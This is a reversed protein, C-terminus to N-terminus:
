CGQSDKSAAPEGRADKVVAKAGLVSSVNQHPTEASRSVLSAGTTDPRAHAPRDRITPSGGRNSPTLVTSSHLRSKGGLAAGSSAVAGPKRAVSCSGVAASLGGGGVRRADVESFAQGRRRCGKLFLTAKAAAKTRGRSFCPVKAAPPAGSGQSSAAPSPSPRAKKAAATAPAGSSAGPHAQLGHAPLGAGPPPVPSVSAVSAGPTSRSVYPMGAGAAPGPSARTVAARAGSVGGSGRRYSLGIADHGPISASARSAPQPVFPAICFRSLFSLSSSSTAQAFAQRFPNETGKHGSKLTSEDPEVEHLLDTSAHSAQIVSSPNALVEAAVEKGRSEKEGKAQGGANQRELTFRGTAGHSREDRRGGSGAGRIALSAVAKAAADIVAADCLCAHRDERREIEGDSRGCKCEHGDDAAIRPSAPRSLSRNEDAIGRLHARSQARLGGRCVLEQRRAGTGNTQEQAATDGQPATRYNSMDTSNLLMPSAVRKSRSRVPIARDCRCGAQIHWALRSLPFDCRSGRATAERVEKMIQLALSFRSDRSAAVFPDVPRGDERFLCADDDDDDDEDEEVDSKDAVGDSDAAGAAASAAVASRTRITRRPKRSASSSPQPQSNEREEPEEMDERSEASDGAARARKQAPREANEEGEDGPEEEPAARRARRGGKANEKVSGAEPEDEGLGAAPTSVQPSRQLKTRRKEEKRQEIWQRRQEKRQQAEERRQRQRVLSDFRRRVRRTTALFCKMVEVFLKKLSVRQLAVSSQTGFRHTSLFQVWQKQEQQSFASGPLAVGRQEILDEAALTQAVRPRAVPLSHGASSPPSHSAGGRAATQPRAASTSLRRRKARKFRCVPCRWVADPQLEEDTPPPFICALHFVRRCRRSSSPSRRRARSPAGRRRSPVPLGADKVPRSAKLTRENEKDRPNLSQEGAAQVNEQKEEADERHPRDRAEGDCLFLDGGVGCMWCLREHYTGREEDESADSFLREEDESADSFLREEDESADSFLREEDESADSFLREEDGEDSVRMQAEGAGGEVGYPFVEDAEMTGTPEKEAQAGAGELPSRVANMEPSQRMCTSSGLDGENGKRREDNSFSREGLEGCGLSLAEKSASQGDRAAKLLERLATAAIDSSPFASRRLQHLLRDGLERHFANAPVRQRRRASAGRRSAKKRGRAIAADSEDRAGENKAAHGATSGQPPPSRQELESASVEDNASAPSPRRAEACPAAELEGSGAKEVIEAEPSKSGAGSSLSTETSTGKVLQRPLRVARQLPRHPARPLSDVLFSALGIPTLSPLFAAARAHRLLVDAARLYRWRLCAREEEESDARGAAAESAADPTGCGDGTGLAAESSSEEEDGQVDTKEAARSASRCSSPESEEPAEEKVTGVPLGTGKMESAVPEAGTEQKAQKKAEDATAEGGHVRSAALWLPLLVRKRVFPDYQSLFSVFERLELELGKGAESHSNSLGPKGVQDRIGSRKLSDAEAKHANPLLRSPLGALRGAAESCSALVDDKEKESVEVARTLFTHLDEAEGVGDHPPLAALASLEASAPPCRSRNVGLPVHALFAKYFFRQSPFPLCHVFAEAAQNRNADGESNEEGAEEGGSRLFDLCLRLYTEECLELEARKVAPCRRGEPSAAFSSEPSSGEADTLGADSMDTLYYGRLETPVDPLPFGTFPCANLVTPGSACPRRSEPSEDGSSEGSQARKEALGGEREESEKGQAGAGSALWGTFVDLALPTKDERPPIPLRLGEHAVCEAARLGTDYAGDVCQFYAKSVYEGAFLVRPNEAPHPARLVETDDEFANVAPFSYSGRTFPDAQWRTVLYDVLRPLKQDPLGFMRQLVALVEAVVEEDSQLGGYGNSFPPFSHALLCGEKGYAHLNLFQFKQDLCNLQLQHPEWFVDDPHWRLIIKNHVGMKIRKLAQQKELSLAPSFQLLGASGPLPPQCDDPNASARRISPADLPDSRRSHATRGDAMGQGLRLFSESLQSVPLAVVAFKAHVHFFTNTSDEAQRAEQLDEDDAESREEQSDGDRAQGRRQARKTPLGHSRNFAVAAPHVQLRVRVPWEADQRAEAEEAGSRSADAEAHPRKEGDPMCVEVLSAAAGTLIFPHVQLALFAPLFNWGEVVIKDAGSATWANFPNVRPGPTQQERQLTYLLHQQQTRLASAMLPMPFHRILPLPAARRAGVEAPEGDDGCASSPVGPAREAAADLGATYAHVDGGATSAASLRVPIQQQGFPARSSSMPTQLSQPSPLPPASAPAGSPLFASSSWVARSASLSTSSSRSVGSGAPPHPHELRAERSASSLAVRERGQESLVAVEFPFNKLASISQERLDGVYGLRSQLQVFLMRLEQETLACRSSKPSANSKQKGRESPSALSQTDNRLSERAKGVRGEEGEVSALPTSSGSARRQSAGGMPSGDRTPSQAGKRSRKDGGNLKTSSAPLQRGAPFAEEKEEEEGPLSAPLVEEEFVERISEELIDWASRRCGSDTCLAAPFVPRVISHEHLRLSFPFQVPFPSASPHRPLDQLAGPVGFGSAGNRQKGEEEAARFAGAQSTKELGRGTPTSPSSALGGHCEMERPEEATSADGAAAPRPCNHRKGSVSLSEMSGEEDDAGGAEEGAAGEGGREGRRADAASIASLSSKLRELECTNLACYLAHEGRSLQAERLKEIARRREGCAATCCDPCCLSCSAGSAFSAREQEAAAGSVPAATDELSPLSDVTARASDEAGLLGRLLHEGLPYYSPFASSSILSTRTKRKRDRSRSGGEPEASAAERVATRSGPLSRSSPWHAGDRAGCVCPCADALADAAAPFTRLNELADSCVEDFDSADRRAEPRSSANCSATAQQSSCSPSPLTRASAQRLYTRLPPAFCDAAAYSLSVTSAVAGPVIEDIESNPLVVCGSICSTFSSASSAHSLSPPPCSAPPSSARAAPALGNDSAGAVKEAGGPPDQRSSTEHLGTTRKEPAGERSEAPETPLQSNSASLTPAPFHALKAAARQRILELIHNVRVTSAHSIRAGTRDDYWNSFFTSEWNQKGCVDAVLPRLVAAIGSVSRSPERRWRCDRPLGAAGVIGGIAKGVPETNFDSHGGSANAFPSKKTYSFASDHQHKRAELRDSAAPRKQRRRFRTVCHMYNAGLDVQIDKVSRGDPLQRAPLLTTFARGGVRPKAEVLLVKAGCRRLYAAAALGSVGAGIVVCDCKLSFQEVVPADSAPARAAPCAGGARRRRSCPSLSCSPSPSASLSQSVSPPLPQSPTAVGALKSSGEGGSRGQQKDQHLKGDKGEAGDVPAEADVRQRTEEPQPRDDTPIRARQAGCESENKLQQRLVRALERAPLGFGLLDVPLAPGCVARRCAPISEGSSGATAEGNLEVDTRGGTSGSCSLRGAAASTASKEKPRQLPPPKVAWPSHASGRHPQSLSLGAPTLPAVTAIRCLESTHFAGGASRCSGHTAGAPPLLRSAHGGLVPWPSERPAQLCAQFDCLSGRSGRNTFSNASSPAASLLSTRLSPDCSFSGRKPSKSSNQVAYPGSFSDEGFLPSQLFSQLALPSELLVARRSQGRSVGSGGGHSRPSVSEGYSTQRPTKLQPMEEGADSALPPIASGQVSHADRRRKRKRKEKTDDELARSAPPTWKGKLMDTYKSRKVDRKPRSPAAAVPSSPSVPDDGARSSAHRGASADESDQDSEATADTRAQQRNSEPPKENGEESRERGASTRRSPSQSRDKGRKGADKAEDRHMAEEQDVSVAPAESGYDASDPTLRALSLSKSARCAAASSGECVGRRSQDGSDAEEARSDM